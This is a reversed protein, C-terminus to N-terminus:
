ILVNLENCGSQGYFLYCRSLPYAFILTLLKAVNVEMKWVLYKGPGPLFKETVEM